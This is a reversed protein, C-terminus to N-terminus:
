LLKGLAELGGGFSLFGVLFGTLMGALLVSLFLMKGRKTVFYGNRQEGILVDDKFLRVLKEGRWISTTSVQVEYNRGNMKFKHASGADFGHYTAVPDDNFYVTERYTWASKHFVISDSGDQFYFWAGKWLSLGTMSQEEMIEIPKLMNM